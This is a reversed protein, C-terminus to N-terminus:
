MCLGVTIYSSGSIRAPSRDLSRRNKKLVKGGLRFAEGKEIKKM